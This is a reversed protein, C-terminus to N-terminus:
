MLPIDVSFGPLQVGQGGSSDRMMDIITAVALLLASDEGPYVKIKYKDPLFNVNLLAGANVKQEIKAVVTKSGRTYDRENRYFKFDWGLYGGVGYYIEDGDRERGRFVRWEEKMWLLGKGWYDKNITFLADDSDKSGPPLIRFSWRLTFPNMTHKSMRIKFMESGDKSYVHVSKHGFSNSTWKGKLKAFTQDVKFERGDSMREIESFEWKYANTDIGEFIFQAAHPKEKNLFEYVQGPPPVLEPILPQGPRGRQMSPNVARFRASPDDEDDDDGYSDGGFGDYLGHKHASHVPYEKRAMAPEDASPGSGEDRYREWADGDDWVLREGDPTLEGKYVEHNPYTISITGGEIDAQLRIGDASTFEGDKVAVFVGGQRWVGDFASTPNATAEGLRVLQDEVDSHGIRRGRVPAFTALLTAAAALTFPVTGVM